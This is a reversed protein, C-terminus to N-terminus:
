FKLLLLNLIQILRREAFKIFNTISNVKLFSFLSLNRSAQIISMDNVGAVEIEINNRKILCSFISQDNKHKVFGANKLENIGDPRILAFNDFVCYYFWETILNRNKENNILMIWTAQYQATNQQEKSIGLEDFVQQKTWVYELEGFKRFGPGYSYASIINDKEIKDLIASWNKPNQTLDCGVDVYLLISGEPISNLTELIIIPKWGWYAFGPSNKEAQFNRKLGSYKTELLEFLHNENFFYSDKILKIRNKQIRLRQSAFRYQYKKSYFSCLYISRLPDM